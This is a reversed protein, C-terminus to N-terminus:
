RRIRRTQNRTTGIEVSDRPYNVSYHARPFYEVRVRIARRRIWLIRQIRQSNQFSEPHEKWKQQHMKGLCLLSGSWVHVKAKSLKIVRYHLFTSRMWPTVHWEITSVQKIEYKQEMTLKQTTGFPTKPEESDTNNYTFLNAHYDLGLHIAAKMTASM